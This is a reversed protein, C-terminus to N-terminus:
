WYVPWFQGDTQKHGNEARGWGHPATIVLLLAKWLHSKGRLASVFVCRGPPSTMHTVMQSIIFFTISCWINHCPIFNIWYSLIEASDSVRTLFVFVSHNFILWIVEKVGWLWARKWWPPQKVIWTTLAPNSIKKGGCFCCSNANKNM